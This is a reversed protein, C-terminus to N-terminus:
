AASEADEQADESADSAAEASEADEDESESLDIANTLDVQEEEPTEIKEDPPEATPIM